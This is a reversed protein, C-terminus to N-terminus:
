PAYTAIRDLELRITVMADSPTARWQEVVAATEPNSLDWYRPALTDVALSVTDDDWDLVATGDFRVWAPPEHLENSVLLSIRPDRQLGRVKPASAMSFMRVSSGDWDFWVTAGNATGDANTRLLTAQRTPELFAEIQATTM